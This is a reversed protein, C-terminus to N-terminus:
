ARRAKAAATRPRSGARPRVARAEARRTLREVADAIRPWVPRPLDHGMGPIVLLEAGPIARATDLGGELPVLPDADGHIVLAPVELRRLAERRSTATLVAVLQRLVGDPHHCREYARLERARIENEEFPFGPSGIVRFLEVVRAVNSESDAPRPALLAAAAEPKSPPLSADGTSSLMSTLSRVRDPAVIAMTQAIMGGLSAGVVHASRLALADLVGLADRAMDELGYPVEFPARAMIRMMLDAPDPAGLHDLKSSLGVDRNDFRIVFHGRRALDACFAEDWLIMQAGLGMVLLLPRAERDGFTDYEIELGDVSARPM